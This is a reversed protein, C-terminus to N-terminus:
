ELSIAKVDETFKPKRKMDYLNRLWDSGCLLMQVTDTGLSARYTDIVRGGASFTSESAVTTIPISLIECAMKSLVRFKLNMSKWWDLANFEVSDGECIYVGEQLYTDLESKVHQVTDVNRVFKEFKSRGTEVAPGKGKWVTTVGQVSTNRAQSDNEMLQNSATTHKDLYIRYLEYLADRVIGIQTTAENESYIVPFAFQIFTMKNRPDLVAAISLLLNSSGWYKDFKHQMRQAMNKMWPEVSESKQGLIEKINYLEPLFLNATPYESGSIIKTVENFHVLLSCIEEVRQWDDESPLCKYNPDRLQYRPFVQKFDLACSLMAFTANWRTCCDLILKKNPVQLQKCIENFSHLRQPSASIYKVSDRVNEIISKIESLGDQVLINLIHACCRVHFLKGELPLTTHFSLSDHLLRVASDNYSANDVTITWVKEEIGWGQLCKYIADCVCTGTHPPLVEVFNLVRKQLKSDMDVFHSTIVMYQINQNSTWIDTTISIKDVSNLLGQVRKKELEYTSWCDKTTATRGIREYYPSASQMVINFLEYEVFSFPLEHVMIMHSIVERMRAQDYKWSQVGSVSESKQTSPVVCINRQGSLNIRRKICNDLHRKYQTTTGDKQKKLKFNCHNCQVKEEGNELRVVTM